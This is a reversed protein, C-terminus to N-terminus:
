ISPLRGIGLAEYIAGVRHCIAKWDQKVSIKELKRSVIFDGFRSNFSIRIEIGWNDRADPFVVEERLKQLTGNVEHTHLLRKRDVEEVEAWLSFLPIPNLFLTVRRKGLSPLKDPVQPETLNTAWNDGKEWLMGQLPVDKWLFICRIAELSIDDFLAKCDLELPFAVPKYSYGEYIGGEGAKQIDIRQQLLDRFKGKVKAASHSGLWKIISSLIPTSLLIEIWTM